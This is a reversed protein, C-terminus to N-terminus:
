VGLREDVVCAIHDAYRELKALREKLQAIQEHAAAAAYRARKDALPKRAPRRPTPKKTPM